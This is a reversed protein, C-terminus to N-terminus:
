DYLGRDRRDAREAFLMYKAYNFAEGHTVKLLNDRMQPNM